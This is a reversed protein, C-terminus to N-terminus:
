PGLVICAAGALAEFVWMGRVKGVLLVLLPFGTEMEAKWIECLHM